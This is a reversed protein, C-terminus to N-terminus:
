HSSFVKSKLTKLKTFNQYLKLVLLFIAVCVQIKIDEYGHFTFKELDPELTLNYNSPIVDNSLRKFVNAASMTSNNFTSFRVVTTRISTFKKFNSDSSLQCNLFSTCQQTPSNVNASYDCLKRLNSFGRCYQWHAISITLKAFRM